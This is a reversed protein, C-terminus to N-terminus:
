SLLKQYYNDSKQYNIEGSFISLSFYSILNNKNKLWKPILKPNKILGEKKMESIVPIDKLDIKGCFLLNLVDYKGNVVIARLFNHVRVLGDLYVIDKTFPYCGTIVGGRFIRRTSEYAETKIDTKTLFYRFVEIFNAGGIAMQIGNVRNMIRCMRRFDMCGSIFESFVALGEQTKTLTAYNAGLIKVDNQMRGNLTTAVHTYAEHNILQEIDNQTFNANERIKITKSTATARATIDKAIVVKPCRDNFFEKIKKEIQNRVYGSSMFNNSEQKAQSQKEIIHAFNTAIELPTTKGDKLRDTPTGYIKSSHEFFESNGCSTILDLGSEIDYSKERLWDDFPLDGLKLRATKLESRIEKDDFKPYEVVPLKEFGSQFFEYKISEPWNLFRLIKIRRSTNYLLDSVECIRKKDKLGLM